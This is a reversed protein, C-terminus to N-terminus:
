AEQLAGIVDQQSASAAPWLSVGIALAAACSAAVLMELPGPRVNALSTHGLDIGRGLVTVVAVPVVVGLLYGFLAVMGSEGLLLGLVRARSFGLARLTGIESRRERFSMAVTAGVILCTMALMGFALKELLLTMDMEGAMSGAVWEDSPGYAIADPLEKFLSQLAQDAEDRRAPDRFVGLGIVHGREESTLLQDVYDYHVVLERENIGEYTGLFHFSTVRVEGTFPSRWTVSVTGPKWGMTRATSADSIMAQREHLWDSQLSPEVQMIVASNLRFYGDSAASLTAIPRRGGKGDLVFYDDAYEVSAVGPLRAMRSAYTVPLELWINASSIAVYDPTGAVMLHARRIGALTLTLVCLTIAIAVVSTLSRVLRHRVGALVFWLL